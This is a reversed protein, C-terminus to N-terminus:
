DWDTGPAVCSQVVDEDLPVPGELQGLQMGENGVSGECIDPLRGNMRASAFLNGNDLRGVQVYGYVGEQGSYYEITLRGDYHTVWPTCNTSDPPDAEYNDGLINHFLTIHNATECLSLTKSDLADRVSDVAAQPVRIMSYTVGPRPNFDGTDDVEELVQQGTYFSTYGPPDNKPFEGFGLRQALGEDSSSECAAVALLLLSSAVHRALM